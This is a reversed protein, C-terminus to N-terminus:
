PMAIISAGTKLSSQGLETTVIVQEPTPDGTYIKIMDLHNIYAEYEIETFKIRRDVDGRERAWIFSAM